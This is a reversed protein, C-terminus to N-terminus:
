PTCSTINKEKDNEYCKLLEQSEERAEQVVLGGGLLPAKRFRCSETTAAKFRRWYAANVGIV